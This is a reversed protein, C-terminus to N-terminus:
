KTNLFPGTENLPASRIPIETKLWTCSPWNCDTAKNWGDFNCKSKSQRFHTGILHFFPWTGIALRIKLNRTAVTEGTANKITDVSARIPIMNDIANRANLKCKRLNFHTLTRMWITCRNVSLHVCVCVCLYVSKDM